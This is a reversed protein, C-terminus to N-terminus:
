KDRPPTISVLAVPGNLKFLPINNAVHVRNRDRTGIRIKLVFQLQCQLGDDVTLDEEHTAEDTFPQNGLRGGRRACTQKKLTSTEKEKRHEQVRAQKNM